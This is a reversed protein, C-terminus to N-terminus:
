LKISTVIVSRDQGKMSVSVNLCQNGITIKACVTRIENSGDLSFWITYVLWVGILRLIGAANEHTKLAFDVFLNYNKHLRSLRDKRKINSGIVHWNFDHCFSVRDQMINLRSCFQSFSYFVFWFTCFSRIIDTSISCIFICMYIHITAHIRRLAHM